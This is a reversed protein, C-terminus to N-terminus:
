DSGDTTNSSVSSLGDTSSSKSSNSGSSSDAHKASLDSISAEKFKEYLDKDLEGDERKRKTKPRVKNIALCQEVTKGIIAQLEKKKFYEKKKDPHQACYVGKMHKIQDKVVHCESTDHTDPGHYMCYKGKGKPREPYKSLLTKTERRRRKCPIKDKIGTKTSPRKCAEESGETRELRECFEVFEAIMATTSDFDHMVMEKQWHPPCGFELIDLLEDEQLKAPHSTANDEWPFYEFYNNIEVVRAVFRKTTMKTPKQLFRRLFRKQTQAARKPFIDKGVACMAEKFTTTTETHSVTASVHAEFTALASSQLLQRARIYQVPGTTDGQGKMAATLTRLFVIWEELTGDSFYPVYVEYSPSDKKSPDTCCKFTQVKEKRVPKPEEKEIPIPPM